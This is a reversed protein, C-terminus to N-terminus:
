RSREVGAAAGAAGSAGAPAGLDWLYLQLGGCRGRCLEEARAELTDLLPPVDEAQTREPVILVRGRSAFRQRIAEPSALVPVGSYFDRVGEEHMRMRRGGDDAVIRELFNYRVTFDVRGWYLLSRLPSVSGLPISDSGPVARILRAVERYDDGMTRRMPGAALRRADNFAPTTVLAVLSAAAVAVGAAVRARRGLPGRAALARLAVDHVARLLAVLAIAGALLLAPVALLIFRPQKWPFLFSHLLFPVAFWVLLYTGLRRDRAVVYLFVIPCLSILAPFAESLSWYYARVSPDGDSAREYWLPTFQSLTVLGRIMQPAAAAVVVLAATGAAALQLAVSERWAARGRAHLDAVGALLFALALGTVASLTTVQVRAALLLVVVAVAAWLQAAHLRARAPPERAGAHRVIEWGALLAILGFNLQYTYFRAYRSQFVAEPYIALLLAAAVAAWAGAMRWAVLSFLAVNLIGFLAAPLRTALELPAVHENAVAILRTVDIGRWYAEGSPLLPGAGQQLSRAAFHAYLEDSWLEYRGLNALRLYTALALTLALAVAPLLRSRM